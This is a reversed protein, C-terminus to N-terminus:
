YRRPYLSQTQSVSLSSLSYLSMVTSGITFALYFTLARHHGRVASATKINSSGQSRQISGSTTTYLVQQWHDNITQVVEAPVDSM